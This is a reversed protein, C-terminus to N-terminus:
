KRAPTFSTQVTPEPVTYAPASGLKFKMGGAAFETEGKGKRCRVRVNGALEVEGTGPLVILDDCTGECGPASFVVGGSAKLPTMADGTASPSRVDVKTCAVKLLIDDGALVDFKPRGQGLRLVVRVPPGGLSAPPAQDPQALQPLPKVPEPLPEPKPTKVRDQVLAPIPSPAAPPLDPVPTPKAVEPVAPPAIKTDAGAPLPPVAAVPKEPAVAPLAIEVVPAAPKPPPSPLEITPLAPPEAKQPEPKVGSVPPLTLEVPAVKPAEAPKPPAVPTPPQMAVQVAAPVAAPVVPPVASVAQVPVVAPPDAPPAATKPRPATGCGSSDATAALGAISLGLFGALLKWRTITM